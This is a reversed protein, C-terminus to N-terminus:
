HGRINCRGIGLGHIALFQGDLHVVALHGNTARIDNLGVDGCAVTHDVDDVGDKYRLFCKARVRFWSADGFVPPKVNLLVAQLVVAFTEVLRDSDSLM